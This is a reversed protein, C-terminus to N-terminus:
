PVITKVIDGWPGKAGRTNEWRLCFYIVRGRDAEDFLLSVHSRTSFDSRKLDDISSPQDIGIEYRVECGHVGHPKKKSATASDHWDLRLQRLGVARVEVLPWTDPKASPSHRTEAVTMGLNVRDDDMVASNYRLYENVFKRVVKKADAAKMRRDLRDAKGANPHEAKEHAMSFNEIAIQVIVVKDVAIGFRPYNDNLYVMFNSLWNLLANYANPLYNQTGM